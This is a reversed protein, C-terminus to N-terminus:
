APAPVRARAAVALANHAVVLSWVACVALPVSLMKRPRTLAAIANLQDASAMGTQDLQLLMGHRRMLFSTDADDFVVLSDALTEHLLQLEFDVHRDPPTGSLFRKFPNCFCRGSRTTHSVRRGSM